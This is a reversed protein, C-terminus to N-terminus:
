KEISQGIMQLVSYLSYTFNMVQPDQFMVIDPYMKLGDKLMQRAKEERGYYHHSYAMAMFGFVGSVQEVLVLEDMALKQEVFASISDWKQHSWFPLVSPYRASNGFRPQIETMMLADCNQFVSYFLLGYIASAFEKHVILEPYKFYRELSQVTSQKWTLRDEKAVEDICAGCKFKSDVDTPYLLYANYSRDLAKWYQKTEIYYEALVKQYTHNVQKLVADKKFVSPVLLSDLQLFENVKGERFLVSTSYQAVSQSLTEVDYLDNYTLKLKLVEGPSFKTQNNTLYDLLNGIVGNTEARPYLNRSLRLVYAAAVPKMSDILELAYNYYTLAGLKKLDITKSQYYKEDFLKEVGKSELEQQTILKEKILYDTYKKKDKRTISLIESPMTPEVDMEKGNAFVSLNVHTTMEKIRYPINLQRLIFAYLTSSTVCNYYGRRFIEYFQINAEYKILFEKHVENLIKKLQKPSNLNNYRTKMKAVFDTVRKLDLDYYSSDTNKVYYFLSFSDERCHNLYNLVTRKEPNSFFRLTDQANSKFALLCIFIVLRNFRM